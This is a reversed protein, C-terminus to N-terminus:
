CDELEETELCTQCSPCYYRYLKISQNEVKAIDMNCVKGMFDVLESESVICHTKWNEDANCLIAKCQNCQIVKSGNHTTIDLYINYGKVEKM